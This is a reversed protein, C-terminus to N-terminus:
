SRSLLIQFTNVIKANTSSGDPFNAQTNSPSIGLTTAVYSELIQVGDGSNPNSEKLRGEVGSKGGQKPSSLGRIFYKTSCVGCLPHDDPLAVLLFRGGVILRM